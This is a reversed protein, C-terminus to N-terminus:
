RWAVGLDDLVGSDDAKGLTLKVFGLPEVVFHEREIRKVGAQV